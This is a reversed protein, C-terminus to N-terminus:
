NLVIWFGQRIFPSLHQKWLLLALQLKSYAKQLNPVVKKEMSFQVQHLTKHIGCSLWFRRCANSFQVKDAGEKQVFPDLLVQGSEVKKSFDEISKILEGVFRGDEMGIVIETGAGISPKVERERIPQPAVEFPIFKNGKQKASITLRGEDTSKKDIYGANTLLVDSGDEAIAMLKGKTELIYPKEPTIKNNPVNYPSLVISMQQAPSLVKEQQSKMM